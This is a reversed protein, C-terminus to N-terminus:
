ARERSAFDVRYVDGHHFIANVDDAAAHGSGLGGPLGCVSAYGDNQM